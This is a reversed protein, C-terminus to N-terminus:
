RPRAAAAARRKAALAAFTEFVLQLALFITSGTPDLAPAVEVIDMARVPLAEVLGRVLDIMRRSDLGGAVPAGTGPACSPDAVDIDVTLYVNGLGALRAHALDITAKTGMADVDRAPVFRIDHARMFELEAENYSRTGLIVLHEPRLRTSDLARRLPCAHSLGSGEYTDFLDPHADLSVLGYGEPLGASFGRLLGITVSHDGGLSLLFANQGALAARRRHDAVAREVRGIYRERAADDGAREDGAAGGAPADPALDGLDVVRLDSPTVIEGRESIAPSTVSIERLRAPAAAAGGRWSVGGEWPLGLILVDAPPRAAPDALGGWPHRPIMRRM